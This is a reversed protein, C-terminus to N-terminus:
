INAMRFVMMAKGYRATVATEETMTPAEAPHIDAKGEIILSCLTIMDEVTKLDAVSGGEIYQQYDHGCMFRTKGGKSRLWEALSILNDKYERVTCCGPLQMWVHYGSGVADGIFALDHLKDYFFVSGATHGPIEFVELTLEGADIIDGTNVPIFKNIDIDKKHFEEIMFDPPSKIEKEAMYVTEFEDAYCMHDPHAHTIALVIPLETIKKLTPMLKGEGMGTDIAIARDNGEALFFTSGESDDIQWIGECIKKAKFQDEM